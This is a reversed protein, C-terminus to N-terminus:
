GKVGSLERAIEPLRKTTQKYQRASTRSIVDLGAESRDGDSCRHRQRRFLGAGLRRQSERVSPRGAIPDCGGGTSRPSVPLGDCCVVALSLLAAGPRALTRPRSPAVHLTPPAEATVEALWCSGIRCRRSRDQEGGVALIGTKTSHAVVTFVDITLRSPVFRILRVAGSGLSGGSLPALM